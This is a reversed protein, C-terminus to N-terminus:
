QIPVVLDIMTKAEPPLKEAPESALNQRVVLARTRCAYLALLDYKRVTRMHQVHFVGYSIKRRWRRFEFWGKVYASTGRWGDARYGDRTFGATSLLRDQDRYNRVARGSVYIALGWAVLLVIPFIRGRLDLDALTCLPLDRRNCGAGGYWNVMMHEWVVWLYAVPPVLYLIRSGFRRAGWVTLGVSLGLGLALAGHGSWVVGFIDQMEPFFFSMNDAFGSRGTLSGPDSGVLAGYAPGLNLAFTSSPPGVLLGQGLYVSIDEALAFGAGTAGAIVAYDIPGATTRLSSRRWLVLVLLPSVKLLEETLPAWLDKNLSTLRLEIGAETLSDLLSETWGEIPSVGLLWQVFLALLYVPGMGVMFLAALNTWSISRWPASVAAIVLLFPVSWASIAPLQWDTVILLYLWIMIGLAWFVLNRRGRSKVRNLWDSPTTPRSM